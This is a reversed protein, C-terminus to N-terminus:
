NRRRQQSTIEVSSERKGIIRLIQFLETPLRTAVYYIVNLSIAKDNNVVYYFYPGNVRIMLVTM